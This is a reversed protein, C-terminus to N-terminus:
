VLLRGWFVSSSLSFLCKSFKEMEGVVFGESSPFHKNATVLKSAVLETGLIVSSFSLREIEVDLRQDATPPTSVM